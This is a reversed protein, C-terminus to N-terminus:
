MEGLFGDLVKEERALWTYGEVADKARKGLEVRRPEDKLVTEIKLRWDGVDDPECFVANSENLIERIVPLDSSVIARGAAMYEFMKMPSAVSASDATGSSGMISRSYPMLLIDAAAQYLPLDRNPIFGTFTINSISEAEARQKWTNVDEARGGVWVFHAQPILKALALFLDTGRGAYLHGTCMVTQAERIDIQRRAEAPAPLSAFRELDVGNPAIVVEDPKLQMSYNRELMDVLAQTISVLRKRGRLNAFVRHWMPGFLGTPQIHIEFIVPLGKLLGFVASQPFWVYLLDPKLARARRVSRWTFLRRNSSALWLIPFSTQLGYHKQLNVSTNQSGPVILTIQHGLQTLAQCAKMVQMSNATDSPITSGAIAVIKM